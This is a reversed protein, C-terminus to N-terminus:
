IQIISDAISKFLTLTQEDHTETHIIAILRTSSIRLIRLKNLLFTYAKKVGFKHILV